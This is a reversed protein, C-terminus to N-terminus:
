KAAVNVDAFRVCPLISIEDAEPEKGIADIKELLSFVNDSLMMGVVGGTIEGSRIRYAPTCLVSFDGSEPNSGHAGQLGLVYYGDKISFLEEETCDGPSVVMTSHRIAMEDVRDDYYANGTSSYGMRKGWYDNWIFGKLIGKEIISTDQCPVGEDDMERSCFGEPNIGNDHLTFMSSAVKKGEKGALLSKGRAVNEGSVAKFLTYRLLDQLAKPAFIVQFEGPSATETKKFLNIEHIVSEAIKQPEPNYKRLYSVEEFAPTVGDELKGIALMGFAQLTGRDKHKIGSSNVCAREELVVQNVALYPAIDEPLLQLMEIIPEMLDESGVDAIAQDWVNVSSYKGTSPLSDWKEDKRSARAAALAKEVSTKLGADDIRYTFVSGIAKDKIVRIRVGENRIMSAKSIESLEAEILTSVTKVWVAEVEDAGSKEGASVAYQCLNLM